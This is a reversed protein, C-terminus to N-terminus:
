LGLGISVTEGESEADVIPCLLINVEQMLESHFGEIHVWTYRNQQSPCKMGVDAMDGIFDVTEIAKFWQIGDDFKLVEDLKFSVIQKGQSSVRLLSIVTAIFYLFSVM